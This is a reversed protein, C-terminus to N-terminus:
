SMRSVIAGVAVIIVLCGVAAVGCDWALEHNRHYIAIACGFSFVSGVIMLVWIGTILLEM